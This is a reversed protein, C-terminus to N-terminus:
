PKGMQGVNLTLKGICFLLIYHLRLRYAPSILIVYFHADVHYRIASISIPSSLNIGGEGKAARYM